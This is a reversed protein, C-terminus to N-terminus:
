KVKMVKLAEPMIVKATNYGFFTFEIIAQKKKSTEDRIVSVGALDFIEYAQSLDGFMVPESGSVANQNATASGMSDMDIFTSTYPHDWIMPARDGAVPTWLPRGQSDKIQITKAFTKRNLYFMGNYGAKLEGTLEAYDDFTILGTSATKIRQIDPHKMFGEPEKNGSGKVHMRGEKKAFTQGVDSAIEMEMHFPSMVIQDRTIPVTHSIRWAIVNENGYQSGGETDTETEGEYFAEALAKRVVISMTKGTITRQRAFARVPSIEVQKKRILGDTVTPVLYGGETDRDTRLLRKVENDDGTKFFGSKKEDAGWFKQWTEDRGDNSKTEGGRTAFATELDKQRKEADEVKKELAAAKDAAAKKESAWTEAEKSYKEIHTTLNRVTDANKTDVAKGLQDLASHIDTQMKKLEISMDVPEGGDASKTEWKGM